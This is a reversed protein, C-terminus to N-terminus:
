KGPTEGRRLALYEKIGQAVAVIGLGLIFWDLISTDISMFYASGVIALVGVILYLAIQMKPNLTRARPNAM